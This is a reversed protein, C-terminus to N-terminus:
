PRTFVFKEDSSLGPRFGYGGESFDKLGAPTEIRNQIMFRAMAGRARKAHIGIIKFQGDREEKFDIDLIDAKLGKRDIVKFYENSALNVVTKSQHGRLQEDLAHAIDAGWFDYLDEGKPNHLKRGMELRYPQIRDLPRLLGYLGSLIRLHEQAYAIEGEDLSAADLGTYTDGAFAFMAAETKDEGPKPAFDQFRNYNLEALNESLKMLQRLDARTLKKAIGALQNARERFLPESGDYHRGSAGFNLKKAPSVVAFM